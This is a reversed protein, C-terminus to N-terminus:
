TSKLWGSAKVLQLLRGINSSALTTNLVPYIEELIDSFTLLRVPNKILERFRPYEEWIGREGKLITVATIYTFETQGTVDYVSQIFAESWKPNVLERFGRWAERGGVTKNEEFEKIKTKPNFGSQWSKCSVVVVRDCGMLLPNFGIVDIDSHNSDQKTKFEAHDQSPRFKINHRTFYGKLQLYEDVLQELIDEKM